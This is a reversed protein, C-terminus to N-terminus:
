IPINDPFNRSTKPIHIAIFFPVFQCTLFSVSAFFPFVFAEDKARHKFAGLPLVFIAIAAYAGRKTYAVTNKDKEQM